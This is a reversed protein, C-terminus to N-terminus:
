IMDKLASMQQDGFMTKVLAFIIRECAASSPSPSPTTLRQPRPRWRELPSLCRAPDGSIARLTVRGGHCARAHWVPCTVCTRPYVTCLGPGCRRGRV